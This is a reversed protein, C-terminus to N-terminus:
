NSFRFTKKKIPLIKIINNLEEMSLNSALHSILQLEHITPLGKYKGETEISSVAYKRMDKVVNDCYTNREEWLKGMNPEDKNMYIHSINKLIDFDIGRIQAYKRFLIATHIPIIICDKKYENCYSIKKMEATMKCGDQHPDCKARFSEYRECIEEFTVGYSIGLKKNVLEHVDYLWRTLTERNMFVDDCIKTPGESIFNLYSKSCSECPLFNGLTEFFIRCKQKQENTPSKPYNFTICHLAKWMHPGWIRPLLGFDDNM